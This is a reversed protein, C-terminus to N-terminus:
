PLFLRLVTDYVCLLQSHVALLLVFLELISNNIGLKEPNTKGTYISPGKGFYSSSKSVLTELSLFLWGVSFM